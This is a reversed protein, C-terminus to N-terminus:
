AGTVAHPHVDVGRTGADDDAAAAGFGLADATLQLLEGALLDLQVDELHLVGLGVRLQDGLADGLLERRAHGEAARHALAQLASLAGAGLAHADLDRATEAAGLHAARLEVALTTHRQVRQARVDVVAEILGLGGEAADSHLDPDVLAVEGVLLERALLR